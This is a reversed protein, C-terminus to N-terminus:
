YLSNIYEDIISKKMRNDFCNMQILKKKVRQDMSHLIVQDLDKFVIEFIKGKLSKSSITIYYAEIKQDKCVEVMKETVREKIRYIKEAQKRFDVAVFPDKYKLLMSQMKAYKAQTNYYQYNYLCQEISVVDECPEHDIQEFYEHNMQIFSTKDIEGKELRGILFTRHTEFANLKEHANM